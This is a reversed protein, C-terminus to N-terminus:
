STKELDDFQVLNSRGLNLQIIMAFSLSLVISNMTRGVEEGVESSKEELKM